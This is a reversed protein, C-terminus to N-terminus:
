RKVKDNQEGASIMSMIEEQSARKTPGQTIEGVLHGDRMVLLRDCIGIVEPMESSIVVVAVGVKALGDILDYIEMKAGIDVGRTPEDLLLVKPRIELLRALLVKQQNGGSLKGVAIADNAAKINLRKVAERSRDAAKRRNRVGFVSADDSAINININERVSLHLFLGLDKRDETLYVLGARMTEAISLDTVDVGGLIVKGGTKKDISAVLRALETRGSGVLGAIGVVEGAKVDFSCGLVHRDDAVDRVSLATAATSLDTESAKQYFSAIDRGVMMNVIRGPDLEARELRGVSKGDRIVTVCDSLAYIENMRHSIYIIAMGSQKLRAILEFLGKTERESLSTTPEDMILIRSRAHLARAIEVMQRHALSLSGVVADASFPASLEELLDNARVRMQRRSLLGGRALEAGLFISEAVTLNDALALEQHITAIGLAQAHRPGVIQVEVGDLFVSGEDATVLGSAINILTSKGAGNEGM